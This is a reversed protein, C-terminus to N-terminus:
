IRHRDGRPDVLADAPPRRATVRPMARHEVLQAPERGLKTLLATARVRLARGADLEPGGSGIPFCEFAYPTAEAARAGSGGPPRMPPRPNPGRDAAAGRRRTRRARLPHDGDSRGPDPRIIRGPSGGGRRPSNAEPSHRPRSRTGCSRRTRGHDFTCAPWPSTVGPRGGMVIPQARGRWIDASAVASM